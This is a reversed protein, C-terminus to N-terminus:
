QKEFLFDCAQGDECLTHRRTFTVGPLSGYNIVDVHCFMCGMRRCGYRELIQAYICAAEEFRIRHADTTHWVHRWGYGSGAEFMRPLLKGFLRFFGPIRVLTRYVGAGKEVYAWMPEATLRYADQESRGQSLHWEYTALGTFLNCLHTHNGADCYQPNEAILEDVRATVAARQEEPWAGLEDRWRSGKVLVEGSYVKEEAM